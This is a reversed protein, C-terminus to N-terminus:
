IGLLHRVHDRIERAVVLGAKLKVKDASCGPYRFNVAYTNLPVLRPRITSWVPDPMMLDVLKELQHTKPFAIGREQLLEQVDRQSVAFHHYLWLAYQIISLPFRHRYPKRDTM